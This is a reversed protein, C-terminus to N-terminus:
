KMPGYVPRIHVMIDYKFTEESSHKISESWFFPSHATWWSPTNKDIEWLQLSWSDGNAYQYKNLTGTLYRFDAIFIAKGSPGTITYGEIGKYISAVVRCKEYVERVEDVTPTHWEKGLLVTANDGITGSINEQPYNNFFEPQRFWKFRTGAKSCDSALHSSTSEDLNCAAWKVSLGLDVIGTEIVEGNRLPINDVNGNAVYEEFGKEYDEISTKECATAFFTILAIIVLNWIKLVM